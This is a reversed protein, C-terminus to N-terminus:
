DLPDLATWSSHTGDFHRSFVPPQTWLNVVRCSVFICSSLMDKGRKSFALQIQQSKDSLIPLLPSQLANSSFALVSASSLETKLLLGSRGTRYVDQPLEVRKIVWDDQRPRPPVQINFQARVNQLGRMRPKLNKHNAGGDPGIFSNLAVHGCLPGRERADHTSVLSAHVEHPPLSSQSYRVVEPSNLLTIEWLVSGTSHMKYRVLIFPQPCFTRIEVCPSFHRICHASTVFHCRIQFFLTRGFKLIGDYTAPWKGV